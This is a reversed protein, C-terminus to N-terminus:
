GRELKWLHRGGMNWDEKKRTISLEGLGTLSFLEGRGIGLAQRKTHEM